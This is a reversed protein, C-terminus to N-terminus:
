TKNIQEEDSNHGETGMKQCFIRIGFVSSNKRRHKNVRERRTRQKNGVYRSYGRDM